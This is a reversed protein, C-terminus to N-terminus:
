GPNHAFNHPLRYTGINLCRGVSEQWRANGDVKPIELFIGWIPLPSPLFLPSPLLSSDYAGCLYREIYIYVCIHTHVNVCVRAPKPYESKSIGRGEMCHRSSVWMSSLCAHLLLFGSCPWSWAVTWGPAAALVHTLQEADWCLWLITYTLGSNLFFSVWWLAHVNMGTSVFVVSKVSFSLSSHSFIYAHNQVPQIPWTQWFYLDPLCTVWFM